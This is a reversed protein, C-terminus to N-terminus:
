GRFVPKRKERFATIGEQFDESQMCIDQAMAEYEFCDDLSGDMSKNIANKCLALAVRPKAALRQGLDKAEELLKDREVIKNVLGLKLAEEATITPALMILEKAKALGVRRPLIYFGGWDPVLGIKTFSQCMKIDDSGIIFDCALALNMGAGAAHGQVAAIVPKDMTYILRLLPQVNRLRNRGDNAKFDGMTQIDGGSCFSKGIGCLIIVRIEKDKDLDRFALYLEERMKLDIANYKEPRNLSVTAIGQNKEVLITTYMAKM